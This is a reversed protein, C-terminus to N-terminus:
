TLAVKKIAGNQNICLYTSNDDTDIWIAMETATAIDSTSPQTAQSITRIKLTGDARIYWVSSNGDIDKALEPSNSGHVLDILPNDNTALVSQLQMLTGTGNSKFRAILNANTTLLNEIDFIKSNKYSAIQFDIATDTNGTDSSIKIAQGTGASGHDIFIAAGQTAPSTHDIYIGEQTGNNDITICRGNADQKIRIGAGIGDNDINIVDGAGTALKRIEIGNDNDYQDAIIMADGASAAADSNHDIYISPTSKNTDIWISANATTPTGDATNNIIALPSILGAYQVLIADETYTADPSLFIMGNGVGPASSNIEFGTATIKTAETTFGGITGSTATITGTINAASSYLVGRQTVRFPGDSFKEAGLWIGDKPDSGFTNTRSGTILAGFALDSAETREPEQTEGRVLGKSFGFNYINM